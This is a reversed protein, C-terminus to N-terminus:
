LSLRCQILNGDFPGPHLRNTLRHIEHLRMCWCLYLYPGVSPMLLSQWCCNVSWTSKILLFSSIECLNYPPSGRCHLCWVIVAICIWWKDYNFGTVVDSNRNLVPNLRSLLIMLQHLRLSYWLYYNLLSAARDTADQILCWVFGGEYWIIGAHKSLM